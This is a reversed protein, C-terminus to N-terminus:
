WHGGPRSGNGETRIQGHGALWMEGVTPSIIYVQAGQPSATDAFAYGAISLLAALAVILPKMLMTFRRFCNTDLGRSVPLPSSRHSQDTLRNYDIRYISILYYINVCCLKNKSRWLSNNCTDFICCSCELLLSSDSADYRKVQCIWNSLFIRIPTHSNM